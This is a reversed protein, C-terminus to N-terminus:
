RRQKWTPAVRIRRQRDRVEESTLGFLPPTVIGVMGPRGAVTEAYMYRESTALHRVLDGVFKWRSRDERLRKRREV